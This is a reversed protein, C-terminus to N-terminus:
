FIVYIGIAAHRHAIHSSSRPIIHAKSINVFMRVLVRGCGGGGHEAWRLGPPGRGERERTESKGAGARSFRAFPWRRDHRRRSVREATKSDGRPGEDKVETCRARLARKPVAPRVRPEPTQGRPPRAHALAAALPLPRLVPPALRAGRLSPM